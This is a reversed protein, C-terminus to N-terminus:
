VWHENIVCIVRVILFAIGTEFGKLSRCRYAAFAKYASWHSNIKLSALGLIAIGNRWLYYRSAKM